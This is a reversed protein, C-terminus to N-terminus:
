RRWFFLRSFLGLRGSATRAQRRAQRKQYNCNIFAQVGTAVCGWNVARRPQATAASTIERTEYTRVVPIEVEVEVTKLQTTKVMETETWTKVVPSSRWPIVYSTRCDVCDQAFVNGATMAIAAFILLSITRM